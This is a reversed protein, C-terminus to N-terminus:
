KFDSSPTVATSEGCGLEVRLAVVANGQVTDRSVALVPMTDYLVAVARRHVPM